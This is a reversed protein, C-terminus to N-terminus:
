ILLTGHGVNFYAPAKKKLIFLKNVLKFILCYVLYDKNYFILVAYCKDRIIFRVNCM